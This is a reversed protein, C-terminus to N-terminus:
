AVHGGGAYATNAATEVDLAGAAAAELNRALTRSYPRLARPAAAITSSSAAADVDGTLIPFEVRAIAGTRKDYTSVIWADAGNAFVALNRDRWGGAGGPSFAANNISANGGGVGHEVDGSEPEIFPM